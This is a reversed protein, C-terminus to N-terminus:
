DAKRNSANGANLWVGDVKRALLAWAWQDAFAEGSEAAEGEARVNVVAWGLDGSEAVAISPPEIDTYAHYRMREFVSGFRQEMEAPTTKIIEGRNAIIAEPATLAAMMSADGRCHAALLARHLRYIQVGDIAPPPYAEHFSVADDESFSVDTYRYNFVNGGHTVTAVFPVSEGSALARWDDYAVTIESEGAPAMILGTARGGDGEVLTLTGGGPYDGRRGKLTKGNFRIKKASAINEAIDDFYIALAHFQHGIVFGRERDGGLAEESATRTWVLPGEVAPLTPDANVFRAAVEQPARYYTEVKYASGYSTTVDAVARLSRTECANNAFAFGPFVSLLAATLLTTSKMSRILWPGDARAVPIRPRGLAANPFQQVACANNM